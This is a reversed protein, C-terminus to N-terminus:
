VTINILVFSLLFGVPRPRFFLFNIALLSEIGTRNIKRTEGVSCTPKAKCRTWCKVVTACFTQKKDNNEWNNYFYLVFM